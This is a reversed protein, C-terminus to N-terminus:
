MVDYTKWSFATFFRVIPQKIRRKVDAKTTWLDCGCFPCLDFVGECSSYRGSMDIKPIEKGCKPCIM